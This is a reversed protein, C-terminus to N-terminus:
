RVPGVEPSARGGGGAAKRRLAVDATAVLEEVSFPKQLFAAGPPLQSLQEVHEKPYGSIMLVPVNELTRRHDALRNAKGGPLMVDCIVLDIAAGIRSAEELGSDLSRGKIVSFGETALMSALVGRLTDNDDVLLITGRSNTM